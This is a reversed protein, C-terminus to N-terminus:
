QNIRTRTLAFAYVASAKGQDYAVKTVAAMTAGSRYLDDVLLISKGALKTPDATHVGALIQQRKEPAHIAKLQPTPCTKAIADVAVAVSLLKAIGQAILVTPQFKRATNSSPVPVILNFRSKAKELYKAAVEVLPALATQDNKYKFRYLLDGVESRTTEFIPHGFENEGVCKSDVTHWDLVIGSKWPGQVGQPHLQMPEETLGLLEEDYEEGEFPAAQEYHAELQDDDPGSLYEEWYSSDSDDLSNDWDEFSAERRASHSGGIGRNSEMIEAIEQLTEKAM